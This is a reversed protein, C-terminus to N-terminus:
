AQDLPSRVGGAGRQLVHTYIMTTKVDQHGLLEQDTRIDLSIPVSQPLGNEMGRFVELIIECVEGFPFLREATPDVGVTQHGVMDVENHIGPGGRRM